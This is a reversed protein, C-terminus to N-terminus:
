DTLSGLPMTPKNEADTPTWGFSHVQETTVPHGESDELRGCYCCQYVGIAESPVHPGHGQQATRGICHNCHKCLAPDFEQPESM